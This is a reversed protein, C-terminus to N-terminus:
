LDFKLGFFLGKQIQELIEPYIMTFSNDDPICFLLFQTFVTLFSLAVLILLMVKKKNKTLYELLAVSSLFTLICLLYCFDLQYRPIPFPTWFVDNIAIVFPSLFLLAVFLYIRKKKLLMSVRKSFIHLILLLIPFNVFTGCFMVYPFDKLHSCSFLLALFGLFLRKIDFRESFNQYMHQDEVTLQYSIGFEFLNDFRIFNYLMLCPTILLYPLLLYVLEKIKEKSDLNENDKIRFFVAVIVLNALAVPPRCGFAMAGLFGGCLLYWKSKSAHQKIWAGKIFFIMSWFMLCIASVIATCYLAPQAISYGISLISLAVSLLLYMSFPTAPFFQSCLIYFLYFSGIISLAAFIQTAQYSLLMSGTSLKYPIFLIITPVIGFYTYYHKNYYVEDWNYKVGLKERAETDYPNEMAELAPDIDGKDIYLHGELLADALRGYQQMDPRDKWTGNWYPSLSMPLTCAIITILITVLVILKHVTQIESILLSHWRNSPRIFCIFLIIFLLYGISIISSLGM